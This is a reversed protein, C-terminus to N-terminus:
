SRPDSYGAKIRAKHERILKIAECHEWHWLHWHNRSPPFECIDLELREAALELAQVLTVNLNRGAMTVQIQPCGALPFGAAGASM